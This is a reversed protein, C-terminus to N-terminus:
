IVDNKEDEALQFKIGYNIVGAPGDEHIKRFIAEVRKGIEIRELDSRVQGSVNVGEDLRIIAVAYPAEREFGEPPSRIITYTLIEGRGSFQFSEIRGKRRCKPCLSRPPFFPSGCKACKTGILRYKAERLRWFLPISSTMNM